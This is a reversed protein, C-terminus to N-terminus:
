YVDLADLGAMTVVPAGEQMEVWGRSVLEEIHDPRPPLTLSRRARIDRLTWRLDIDPILTALRIDPDM